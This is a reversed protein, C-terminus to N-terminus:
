SAMVADCWAKAIAETDCIAVEIIAGGESGDSLFEGSTTPTNFQINEGATQLSMAPQGFMCRSVFVATYKEQGDIQDPAYFSIGVYNGVTNRQTKLSNVSVETSNPLTVTREVGTLGFMLIQAGNKIYKVGISITGGTCKRIYEALSSEAYLRGEAFRLEINVNMADGVSQLSEYTIVGATNVYKACKIGRLDFQPM